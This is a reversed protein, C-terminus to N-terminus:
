YGMLACWIGGAMEFLLTKHNMPIIRIGEGCFFNEKRLYNASITYTIRVIFIEM